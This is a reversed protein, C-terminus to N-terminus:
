DCRCFTQRESSRCAGVDAVVLAQTRRQAALVAVEPLVVHLGLPRLAGAQLERGVHGVRVVHSLRDIGDEGAAEVDLADFVPVAVASGITQQYLTRTKCLTKNYPFLLNLVYKIRETFVIFLLLNHNHSM